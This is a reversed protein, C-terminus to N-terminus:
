LLDSKGLNCKSCLTQLNDITTEGGKSWPIIHDIHLTVSPDSSPSAGCVRCKFNDRQMVIFRMRLNIDRKTKHISKCDSKVEYEKEQGNVYNIFSQLANSWRGFKRIYSGSSICSILTNNMDRRTPQKGIKIWVNEMNEFLETESFAKNRYNLNALLLAKNWTGFRRSVASSSYTGNEDYEKMSLSNTNLKHATAKLDVILDDDSINKHYDTYEFQM